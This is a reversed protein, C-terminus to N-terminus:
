FIPIERQKSKKKEVIYYIFTTPILYVDRPFPNTQIKVELYERSIINNILFSPLFSLSFSLTKDVYSNSQVLSTKVIPQHASRIVLM